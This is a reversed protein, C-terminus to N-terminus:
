KKYAYKYSVGLITVLVVFLVGYLSVSDFTAPNNTQKAAKIDKYTLAYTSFKDTEFSVTGNGNDKANLVDTKGDHVRIIYYTRTYGEAVKELGSPIDVTVLVKDSVEELQELKMEGYTKFLEIEYYGALKQDAKVAGKILTLTNSDINEEKVPVYNVTEKLDSEKAVVYENSNAVSYTNYGTAPKITEDTFLGGEIVTKYITSLIAAGDFSGGKITLLGKGNVAGVNEGFIGTKGKFTGGNVTLEGADVNDDLYGNALVFGNNSTFTGNNITARHWNQVVPNGNTTSDSNAIFTGGNIVLKGYDDNKIVNCSNNKNEFTGGNITLSVVDAGTQNRDNATPRSSNYFGNDILSSGNNVNNGFHLNNITMTGMNKITYWGTSLYSGNDITVTAGPYNTVAAGQSTVNGNGKIVLTGKNSIADVGAGTVTINNGNLDITINKGSAVTIAETYSKGLTVVGGNSTADIISQLSEEASVTFPVVFLMLLVVMLYNFYKGM